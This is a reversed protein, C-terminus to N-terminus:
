RIRIIGRQFAVRVAAIRDTVNLKGFINKVHAHVTENSIALANAVEKNALGAAILELVEVERATLAPTKAREALRAAVEESVPHEGGHVQRIVRILDKTLTEKLLYTAAGAELCRHIDETGHHVTLVVIRADPSLRRIARIADPGSMGPLELDMLTVDPKVSPFLEVAQEGTAAARVVEMDPQLDIIVSLGERVVAHDDVCFVRIKASKGKRESM